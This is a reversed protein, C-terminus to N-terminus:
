GLLHLLASATAALTGSRRFLRLKTASWLPHRSVTLIPLVRVSCVEDSGRGIASMLCHRLNRTPTQAPSRACGGRPLTAPMRASAVDYNAQDDSCSSADHCPAGDARRLGSLRTDGAELHLNESAGAVDAPDFLGSLEATIHELKQLLM